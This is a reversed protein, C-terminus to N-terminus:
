VTLRVMTTISIIQPEQAVFKWALQAQYDAIMTLFGLGSGTNEENELQEMYFDDLDKTLLDHIFAQLKDTTPSDARNRLYFMLDNDYLYLRISVEEDLGNYTYKMANELLENAIFRVADQLEAQQELTTMGNYPFFTAWYEALFGASLKKQQWRQRLPTLQPAFQIQLSGHGTTAQEIFDGFIQERM